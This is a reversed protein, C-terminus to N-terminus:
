VVKGGHQFCREKDSQPKAETRLRCQVVRVLYVEVVGVRSARNLDGQRVGVAHLRRLM